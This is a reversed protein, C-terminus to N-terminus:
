EEAIAMSDIVTINPPLNGGFAEYVVKYNTENYRIGYNDMLYELDSPYAGELAYCQVAAFRVAQEIRQKQTEDSRQAMPSQMLLFVLLIAAVALVSALAVITHFRKM